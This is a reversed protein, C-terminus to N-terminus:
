YFKQYLLRRQVTEAKRTSELELELSNSINKQHLDWMVSTYLVICVLGSLKKLYRHADVM